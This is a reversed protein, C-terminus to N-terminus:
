QQQQQNQQQIGIVPIVFSVKGTMRRSEVKLIAKQFQVPDFANPAFGVFSPNTFIQDAHKELFDFHFKGIGEIPLVTHWHPRGIFGLNSVGTLSIFKVIWDAVRANLAQYRNEEYKHEKALVAPNLLRVALDYYDHDVPSTVTDYVWDLKKELADLLATEFGPDDYAFVRDCGFKKSLERNKSSSICYVKSAGQAKAAMVGASGCGGSSGIVLVQDGPKVYKLAEISALFATPAAAARVYTVNHPILGASFCPVLLYEQTGGLFSQGYTKSGVPLREPCRSEVVIGAHEYGVSAKPIFWRLFPLASAYNFMKVDAPNLGVAHVRIVITNPFIARPKLAYNHVNPSYPFWVAKMPEGGMYYFTFLNVGIALIWFRICHKFKPLGTLVAFIIFFYEVLTISSAFMPYWWLFPNNSYTSM